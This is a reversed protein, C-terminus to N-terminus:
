FLIDFFIVLTPTKIEVLNKDARLRLVFNGKSTRILKQALVRVVISEESVVFLRVFM